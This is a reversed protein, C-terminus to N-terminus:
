CCSCRTLCRPMEEKRPVSSWTVWTPSSARAQVNMAGLVGANPAILGVAYWAMDVGAEGTEGSGQRSGYAPPAIRSSMGIRDLSPPMCDNEAICTGIERCGTRAKMIMVDQQTLIEAV